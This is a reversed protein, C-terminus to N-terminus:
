AVCNMQRNRRIMAAIKPMEQGESTVGNSNNSIISHSHFVIGEDCFDSTDSMLNRLFKCMIWFPQKFEKLFLFLKM